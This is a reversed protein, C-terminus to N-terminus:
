DAAKHIAEVAETGANRASGTLIDAYRQAQIPWRYEGYRRHAASAKDAAVEPNHAVEILAEALSVANGASFFFVEESSFHARITPLDASVVPIGLAVYEFLKTSLAFRNLRTPLNPIVGVAAGSVRQLVERQALYTGNVNVRDSLGLEEARRRIPEVADGEGLIDLQLGPIDSAVKAVAEVVLSVGYSPTVTGHYVIRFPVDDESQPGSPLLREDLSNMVVAVKDARVGRDILELRYPDHVTLVHDAVGAAAREILRLARDAARAVRREGFRMAFMDPSLDHVDFILKAGLLKPVLGALLLFDPPNHVQVIDYRRRAVVACSLGTFAVYEGLLRTLGSGRRHSLPLRIVRVGDIHERSPEGVRRMAVVDVEFGEDLAVQAERAVRPEGIPYPGHVVMCLRRSAAKDRRFVRAM